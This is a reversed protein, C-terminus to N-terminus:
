LLHRFEHRFIVWDTGDADSRLAEIVSECSEGFELKGGKVSGGGGAGVGGGKGGPGAALTPHHPDQLPARNPAAATRPDPTHASTLHQHSSPLFRTHHAQRESEMEQLHQQERVARQHALQEEREM